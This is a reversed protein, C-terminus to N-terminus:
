IKNFMEDVAKAREIADDLYFIPKPIVKIQLQKGINHKFFSSMENLAQLMEANNYQQQPLIYIKALSLDSTVTVESILITKDFLRADNVKSKLFLDNIINKVEKAVMQPRKSPAGQKVKVIDNIDNNFDNFM